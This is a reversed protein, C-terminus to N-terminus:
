NLVFFAPQKESAVPMKQSQKYFDATLCTSFTFRLVSTTPHNYSLCNKKAEKLLHHTRLFDGIPLKARRLM